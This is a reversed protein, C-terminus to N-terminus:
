IGYGRQRCEDRFRTYAREFHWEIEPNPTYSVAVHTMSRIAEAINGGYHIASAALVAAGFAADPHLCRLITRKLVSARMQCFASSSAAKGTSFIRPGVPVGSEELVEYGWREVFSIAQIQAAYWEMQNAPESAVFGRAHSNVFPFREGKGSILYCFVNSPLHKLAASDLSESPSVGDPTQLSGPGTNSAAGPAWFGAPHLHSYIAGAGLTPKRNTLVKWVLTTGLTTNADELCAAGSAVLSAIGDTAGAIVAAPPLGTDAAATQCVRGVMDGSRVVVPLLSASIGCRELAANWRQKEAEYGLKLVNSHDAIGFDGSLKGAIWDAPHLLRHVKDWSQPEADRLWVAKSLSHSSTWQKGESSEARTLQEAVSSARQDDYLLARRVPSGSRDVAVLTGSTSAVAVAAIEGTREKLFLQSLGCVANWWDVPEQEHIGDSTPHSAALPASGTWVLKGAIDVASLRVGGTGVDIGVVWPLKSM